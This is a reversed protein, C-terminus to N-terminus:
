HKDLIVRNAPQRLLLAWIQTIGLGSSKKIDLSSSCLHLSAAHTQLTPLMTVKHPRIAQVWHPSTQKSGGCSPTSVTKLPDGATENGNWVM